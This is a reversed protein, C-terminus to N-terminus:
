PQATPKFNVWAKADRIDRDFLFRNLLLQWTTVEKFRKSRPATLRRMVMILLLMTLGLTLILPKGLVWSTLPLSAMALLVPLPSSRILLTLAALLVFGPLGQPLWFLGLGISTAVGRGGNFHLFVPWDHGVVTVLGMAIQHATDLNLLRAIAVVLIGKLIDYISEAIGLKRSFSRFVNSGGAQGSGYDRIDKGFRWKVLLYAMPIAGLLYAALIGIIWGLLETMTVWAEL